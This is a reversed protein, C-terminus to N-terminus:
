AARKQLAYCRCHELYAGEHSLMLDRVSLWLWSPSDIRRPRNRKLTSSWTNRTEVDMQRAHARGIVLALFHAAKLAEKASLRDIQLKLDQPLLERIVVSRTLFRAALMRNGLEPAMRRAGEVVRKAHDRPIQSRPARPADTAVAEKIDILCLDAKKHKGNRVGVLVAFRLRGLSSCGKLWYAADLVEVQADDNRSKLSTVLRRVTEEKFLKRLEANEQKSLPWFCKGLPISPSTDRLREKILHKWTRKLARRMVVKVSEPRENRQQRGPSLGRLAQEYGRMIQELIRATMVGPLDSGRAATVLSLALRILDHAPNGIVTQDFDRIQIDIKGARDAIPGLNGLHCDGCIWIAPGQPVLRTHAASLWEYFKETNGRVYAHASRAMKLNRQASLVHSRKSPAPLRFSTTKMTHMHGGLELWM